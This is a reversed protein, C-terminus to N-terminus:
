LERRPGGAGKEASRRLDGDGKQLKQDKGNGLYDPGLAPNTLSDRIAAMDVSVFPYQAFTLLGVQLLLLIALKKM